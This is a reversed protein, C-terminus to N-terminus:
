TRVGRKEYISHMRNKAYDGRNEISKYKSIIDAYMSTWMKAQNANDQDIASVLAAKYVIALDLGAPLLSVKSITFALSAASVATGEYADSLVLATNSGASAVKYWHSNSGTGDRDLRFYYSYTSTDSVFGDFDTSSGTVATGGNALTTITGTTYETMRALTPIYNYMITRADNAPPDIFIYPDDTIYKITYRYPDSAIYTQKDEFDETSMYDLYRKSGAEYYYVARDADIVMRDFDSSLAYRDQTLTYETDTSAIADGIWTRDLTLSTDSVYTVRYLEDYGAVKLVMNNAIASTWDCDSDGTVTTGSIDTIYGTSYDNTTTISGTKMVHKYDIDAPLDVTYAHNTRGKYKAEVATSVDADRVLENKVTEFMETFPIRRIDALNIM